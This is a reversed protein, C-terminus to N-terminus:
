HWWENLIALHRRMRHRALSEDGALIAELIGRHVQEVDEAAEAGPLSPTQASTHRTWLETLVRLFLVLVPNGALLALERHFPDQPAGRGDSPWLVRVADRLRASVGPEDRRAIVPSLTGLEIAERVSLLNAVGARQYDLYLAMTEISARPDPATVLLGGGPGRRMRAVGHYELLRVAERLVARSVGYRALLEAESGLAEGIPWGDAAIQHHIRSAVVEGLKGDPAEILQPAIPGDPEGSRHTRLWDATATLHEVVLARARGTDGAIVAEVIATHHRGASEKSRVAEAKPTHTATHAYRTTLRTLIEIFSCLAANGSLEGLALHLVDQSWIGPEERRRSEEELLGRLRRVGDETLREAALEAARPELLLRAGILDDVSTGVYDLYIVMARTAPAADPATVFLGGGPGRRMRAVQHHEVLRLAERLVARSVGYRDQLDQESGLNRGVPWGAAIIEDEIRRAVQAGLTGGRAGSGRERDSATGAEGVPSLGAAPTPM